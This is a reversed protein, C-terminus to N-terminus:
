VGKGRGLFMAVVYLIIGVALLIWYITPILGVVAAAATQGDSTLNAKWSTVQDALVPEFAAGLIAIVFILVISYVMGHPSVEANTDRRILKM